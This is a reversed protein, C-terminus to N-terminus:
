MADFIWIFLSTLRLLLMCYYTYFRIHFIQIYFLGVIRLHLMLDFFKMNYVFALNLIVVGSRDEDETTRERIDIMFDEIVQDSHTVTFDFLKKWRPLRNLLVNNTKVLLSDIDDPVKQLSGEGITM